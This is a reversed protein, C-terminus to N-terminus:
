CPSHKMQPATERAGLSGSKFDLQGQGCSDSCRPLLRPDKHYPCRKKTVQEYWVRPMGRRTVQFVRYVGGTDHALTVWQNLYYESYQRSEPGPM